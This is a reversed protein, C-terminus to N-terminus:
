KYTNLRVGIRRHKVFKDDLTIYVTYVKLLNCESGFYKVRVYVAISIYAQVYKFFLPTGSKGNGLYNDWWIITICM